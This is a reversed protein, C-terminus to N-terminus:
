MCLASKYCILSVHSLYIYVHLCKSVIIVDHRYLDVHVELSQYEM